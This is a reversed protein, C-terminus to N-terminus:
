KQKSNSLRAFLAEYQDIEHRNLAQPDMMELASTRANDGLRRAYNLDTLLRRAAEAMRIWDGCPVLEGTAGARVLEGQWDVDYAVIPAAGLAAESLARGTHPSLVVDAIPIVQALWQQDRNGCFVVHSSVGLNEALAVLATRLSGDGVILLSVRQGWERLLALVRVVHDPQKVRELRGVYLLLKPELTGFEGLLSRGGPRQSRPLFHIKDILNGYRFLTSREPRAGNALAFDLNDQNAGAVLDARALVFREIQKERQRTRFLRPMLPSGTTEYVKDSNGGIRIVLPVGSIRALAWGFLGVYLPDGARVASIKEKRILGLLRSFVGIQSFLFNIAPFNKFVRFRGIKGEVFTHREGLKYEAPPGYRDSWHDSSVLTAFPHATWVHM